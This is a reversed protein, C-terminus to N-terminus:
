SKHLAKLAADNEQMLADMRSVAKVLLNRASKVKKKGEALAVYDKRSEAAIMGGLATRLDEWGQRYHGHLDALEPTTPRYAAVERVHEDLTPLTGKLTRLVFDDDVYQSEELDDIAQFISKEKPEWRQMENTYNHLDAAIEPSTGHQPACAAVLAAISVALAVLTRATRM